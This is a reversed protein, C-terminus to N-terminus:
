RIALHTGATSRDCGQPGQMDKGWSGEERGKGMRRLRAGEIEGRQGFGGDLVTFLVASM